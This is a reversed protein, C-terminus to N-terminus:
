VMIAAMRRIRGRTRSKAMAREAGAHLVLGAVPPELKVAKM